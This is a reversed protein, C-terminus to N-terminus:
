HEEEYDLEQHTIGPLQESILTAVRERVSGEYTEDDCFCLLDKGQRLIAILRKIAIKTHMGPFEKESGSEIGHLETLLHGLVVYSHDREVHFYRDMRLGNWPNIEQQRNRPFRLDVIVLGRHNTLFDTFYQWSRPTRDDKRTSDIGLTYVVDTM